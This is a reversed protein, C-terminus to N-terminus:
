WRRGEGARGSAPWRNSGTLGRFGSRRGASWRAPTPEAQDDTHEGDRHRPQPMPWRTPLKRDTTPLGSGVAVALPM